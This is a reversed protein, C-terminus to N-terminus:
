PLFSRAHVNSYNEYRRRKRYHIGKERFEESEGGGKGAGGLAHGQDFNVDEALLPGDAAKRDACGPRSRYFIPWAAMPGGDSVDSRADEPRSGFSQEAFDASRQHLKLPSKVRCPGSAIVGAFVRKM